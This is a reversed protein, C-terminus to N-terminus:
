EPASTGPMAPVKQWRFIWIFFLTVASCIAISTLVDSLWHDNVGVRAVAMFIPLILLPIRILPFLFALPFFLAWFHVAHGSPFAGGHASFFQSDWAGNALVEFPRLRHFVEKLVGAILRATFHTCGVFLLIWAVHRSQRLGFLAAGAIILAIGLAFKSFTMGSAVELVRTGAMLFRSHEGGVLHMLQAVPRDFLLISAISLVSALVTALFISRRSM